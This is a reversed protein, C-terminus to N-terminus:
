EGAGEGRTCPADVIVIVVERLERESSCLFESDVCIEVKDSRCWRGSEKFSGTCSSSVRVMLEPFEIINPSADVDAVIFVAAAAGASSNGM